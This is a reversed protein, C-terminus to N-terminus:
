LVEAHDPDELEYEFHCSFCHLWLKGNQLRPDALHGGCYPCVSYYLQMRRRTQMPQRRDEPTMLPRPNRNSM